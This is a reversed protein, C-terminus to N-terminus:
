FPNEDYPINKNKEKVYKIIKKEENQAKQKLKGQEEKYIQDSTKPHPLKNKIRNDFAKCMDLLNQKSPVGKIFDIVKKTKNENYIKSLELFIHPQNLYETGMKLFTIDKKSIKQFDDFVALHQPKKSIHDTEKAKEISNSNEKQKREYYDKYQELSLLIETIKSTAYGLLIYIDSKEDYCIVVVMHNSVPSSIIPEGKDRIVALAFKVNEVDIKSLLNDYYIKNTEYIEKLYGHGLSTLKANNINAGLIIEEDNTGLVKIIKDNIDTTLHGRAISEETLRKTTLDDVNTNENILTGEPIKTFKLHAKQKVLDEPTFPLKAKGTNWPINEHIEKKLAQTYSTTPLDSTPLQEMTNFLTKLSPQVTTPEATTFIPTTSSKPFKGTAISEAYSNNPTTTQDKESNKPFQPKKYPKKNNTIHSNNNNNANTMQQVTEVETNTSKETMNKAIKGAGKGATTKVFRKIITIKLQKTVLTKKSLSVSLLSFAEVQIEYVM